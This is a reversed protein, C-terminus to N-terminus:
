MLNEKLLRMELMMAEVEDLINYFYPAIRIGLLPRYDVFFRRSILDKCIRQTIRCSDEISGNIYNVTITSRHKVPERPTNVTFGFEDALTIISTLELSLLETYLHAM